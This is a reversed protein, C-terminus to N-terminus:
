RPHKELWDNLHEESHFNHRRPGGWDAYGDALVFGNAEGLKAKLLGAEAKFSM